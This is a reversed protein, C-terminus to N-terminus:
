VRGLTAHAARGVSRFLAIEQQGSWALTLPDNLCDRCPTLRECSRRTVFEMSGDYDIGVHETDRGGLASLHEAVPNNIWRLFDERNGTIVRELREDIERSTLPGSRVLIM